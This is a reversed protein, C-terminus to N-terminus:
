DLLESTLIAYFTDMADREKWPMHGCDKLSYFRPNSIVKDLSAKVAHGPHPDQDGHIAVVDCTIKAGMSLMEGRKRMASAEPWISAFVEYCYHADDIPMDIPRYSDIKDMLRGFRRFVDDMDEKKPNAFQARMRSLESAEEPSLKSERQERLDDQHVDELMGSSVLILKKVLAPHTAAFMFGLMAGWSHGILIVPMCAHADMIRRLEEIQSPITKETQFPELLGHTKGLTECLSKVSGAAGPGGHVVVITYPASGHKRYTM